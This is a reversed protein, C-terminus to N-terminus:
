ELEAVVDVDTTDGEAPATVEGDEEVFDVRPDDALREAQAETLHVSFGKLARRFVHGRVGGFDRSLRISENDPDTNDKLVVIYEDRVKKDANTRRFKNPNQGNVTVFSPILACVALAFVVSLTIFFRKM